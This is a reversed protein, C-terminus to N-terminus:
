ITQALERSPAVIPAHIKRVQAVQQRLLDDEAIRREITRVAHLVTTHDRCMARGCETLSAHYDKCLLYMVIQRALSVSKFRSPGRLEEPTLNFYLAVRSVVTDEPPNCQLHLTTM